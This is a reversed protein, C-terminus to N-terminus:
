VGQSAVFILISIFVVPIAFWWRSGKVGATVFLVLSVLNLVNCLFSALIRILPYTSFQFLEICLSVIFAGVAWLGFKNGIKM